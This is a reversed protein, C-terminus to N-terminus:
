ANVAQCQRIALACAAACARLEPHAGAHAICAKAADDLFGISLKAMPKLRAADIKALEGLAASVPVMARVAKLTPALSTNGERVLRESLARAAEGTSVCAIAAKLLDPHATAGAELETPASSAETEEDGGILQDLWTKGEGESAAKRKQQHRKMARRRFSNVDAQASGAGFALAAAATAALMVRRTLPRSTETATLVTQSMRSSM